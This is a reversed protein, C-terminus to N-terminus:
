ADLGNATITIGPIDIENDVGLLEARRVKSYTTFDRLKIIEAERQEKSRKPKPQADSGMGPITSPNKGAKKQKAVTVTARQSASLTTKGVVKM